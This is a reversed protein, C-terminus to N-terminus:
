IMILMKEMFPLSIKMNGCNKPTPKSENGEEIPRKEHYHRYMRYDMFFTTWLEFENQFSLSIYVYRDMLTGEDLINSRYIYILSAHILFQM